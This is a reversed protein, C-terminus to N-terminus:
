RLNRWRTQWARPEVTEPQGAIADDYTGMAGDAATRLAGRHGVLETYFGDAVTSEWAGADMAAVAADLDDRLTAATPQASARKARIAALYPNPVKEGEEAM